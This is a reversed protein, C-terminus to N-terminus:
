AQQRLYKVTMPYTIVEVPSSRGVKGFNASKKKPERIGTADKEREKKARIQLKELNQSKELNQHYHELISGLWTTREDSM